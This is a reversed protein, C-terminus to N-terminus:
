INLKNIPKGFENREFIRNMVKTALNLEKIITKVPIGQRMMAHIKDIDNQKLDEYKIKSKRKKIYVM